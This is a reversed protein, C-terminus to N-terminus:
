GGGNAVMNSLRQEITLEPLETKVPLSLDVPSAVISQCHVKIEGNRLFDVVAVTGTESAAGCYFAKVPTDCVCCFTPWHGLAVYDYGPRVIEERSIQYADRAQLQVGVYHGHAVAIHWRERGRPPVDSMPRFSSEHGTIPRGWVAVDLDPFSFREGESRAFVRIDPGYRALFVPGYVSDSSLWDHNGPLIVVPVAARNLQRVAFELTAADIRNCEFLDGAVVILDARIGLSLDVIRTLVTGPWDARSAVAM